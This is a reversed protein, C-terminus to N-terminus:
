FGISVRALVEPQTLGSGGAVVLDGAGLVTSGNITKINTGSVLVDQKSEMEDYIANKTPVELSGNWPAGYAEDPVTQDQAWTNANSLISAGSIVRGKSDVTLLSYDGATVGTTTLSASIDGGPGADIFSIDASDALLRANPILPNATLLIFESATILTLDESQLTINELWKRGIFSSLDKPPRSVKAVM